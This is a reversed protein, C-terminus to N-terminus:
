QICAVKYILIYQYANVVNVKKPAEHDEIECLQLPIQGLSVSANQLGSRIVFQRLLTLGAGFAGALSSELSHVVAAEVAKIPM